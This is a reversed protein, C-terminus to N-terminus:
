SKTPTLEPMNYNRHMQSTKSRQVQHIYAVTHSALVANWPRFTSEFEKGIYNYYFHLLKHLADLVPSNIINMAIVAFM